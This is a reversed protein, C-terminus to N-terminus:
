YIREKLKAPLDDIEYSRGQSFHAGKKEPPRKFNKGRCKAGSQVGNKSKRNTSVRRHLRWKTPKRVTRCWLTIHDHSFPSKAARRAAAAAFDASEERFAVECCRFVIPTQSFPVKPASRTAIGHTTQPFARFRLASLSGM